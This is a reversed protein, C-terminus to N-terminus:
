IDTRLLSRIETMKQLKKIFKSEKELAEKGMFVLEVKAQVSVSEQFKSLQQKHNRKKFILNSLM